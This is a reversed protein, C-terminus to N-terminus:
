ARRVAGVGNDACLATAVSWPQLVECITRQLTPLTSRPRTNCEANCTSAVTCPSAARCQMTVSRQASPNSQLIKESCPRHAARDTYGAITVVGNCLLHVASNLRQATDSRQLAPASRGHQGSKPSFWAAALLAGRLTNDPKLVTKTNMKSSNIKRDQDAFFCSPSEGFNSFFIKQVSCPM